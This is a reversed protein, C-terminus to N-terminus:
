SSWHDTGRETRELNRSVHAFVCNTFVCSAFETERYICIEPMSSLSPMFTM